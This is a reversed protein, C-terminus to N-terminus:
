AAEMRRAGSEILLMISERRYRVSSGLKVFDPPQRLLRRRRMSAVSVKLIAAVERENMLADLSNPITM